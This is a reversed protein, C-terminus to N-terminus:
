NDGSGPGSFRFVSFLYSWDASPFFIFFPPPSLIEDTLNECCQYMMCNQQFMIFPWFTLMAAGDGSNILSFFCLYIEEFKTVFHLFILFYLIFFVRIDISSFIDAVGHFIEGCYVCVRELWNISACVFQPFGDHLQSFVRFECNIDTQLYFDVLFCVLQSALRRGRTMAGPRELERWSGWIGELGILFFFIFYFGTLVLVRKHFRRGVVGRITSDLASASRVAVSFYFFIFYFFFVFQIWVELQLSVYDSFELAAAHVDQGCRRLRRDLWVGSIFQDVDAARRLM